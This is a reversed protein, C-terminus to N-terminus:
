LGTLKRFYTVHDVNDPSLSCWAHFGLPVRVTPSTVQTPLLVPLFDRLTDYWARQEDRYPYKPDNDKQKLKQCRRIYGLKDFGVVLSQPYNQLAVARPESFHQREDLEVVTGRTPLFLDCRQLTKANVFSEYGRFAILADYIAQLPSHLESNVYSDIRVSVGKAQFKHEIAGHISNLLFYITSKCKHCRTNHSQEINM